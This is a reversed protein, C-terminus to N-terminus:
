LAALRRGIRRANRRHEGRTRRFEGTDAQLGAAPRGPKVMAERLATQRHDAHVGPLRLCGQREPDVLCIGIICFAQRLKQARAEKPLYAHLASLRHANARQQARLEIEGILQTAGQPGKAQREAGAPASPLELGLDASM